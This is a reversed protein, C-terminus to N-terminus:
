HNFPILFTDSERFVSSFNPDKLWIDKVINELMLIIGKLVSVQYKVTNLGHNQLNLIALV